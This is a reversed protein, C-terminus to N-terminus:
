GAAATGSAAQATSPQGDGKRAGVPYTSPYGYYYHYYPSMMFRLPRKHNMILGLIPIGSKRFQDLNRELSSRQVEDASCILIVGDTHKAMAAADSVFLAPPADVLVLDFVTRADALIESFLRSEYVPLPNRLVGGSTLVCLGKTEGFQLASRWGMKKQLAHILGPDRPIRLYEHLCPHRLNCDVLLALTGTEAFTRALNCSVTTKGEEPQTSTFLFIRGKKRGAQLDMRTRLTRFAERFALQTTDLAVGDTTAKGATTDAAHKVFPVGGLVTAKAFKELEPITGITSDMAEMIFVVGLPLALCLIFGIGAFTRADPKVPRRPLGAERLVVVNQSQNGLSLEVQSLRRKMNAYIEQNLALERQLFEQDSYQPTSALLERTRRDLKDRGRALDRRSLQDTAQLKVFREVLEPQLALITTRERSGSRGALIEDLYELAAGIQLVSPHEPTYRTMLADREILLNKREAEIARRQEQSQKELAKVEAELDQLTAFSQSQGKQERIKAELSDIQELLYGRMAQDNRQRTRLDNVRYVDTVTNALKLALDPTPAQVILQFTNSNGVKRASIHGRFRGVVAQAEAPTASEPILNLRELSEKLIAESTIIEIQTDITGEGAGFMKGIREFVQSAQELPTEAIYQLQASTEFVKPVSLYMAGVGVIVGAAVLGFLHARKVVTHVIRMLIEYLETREM